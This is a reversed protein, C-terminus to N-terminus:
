VRKVQVNGKSQAETLQQSPYVVEYKNKILELLGVAGLSITTRSINFYLDILFKANHEILKVNNELMKNARDSLKFKKEALYDKYDYILEAIKIFERIWVFFKLLIYRDWEGLNLLKSETSALLYLLELLDSRTLNNKKVLERGRNVDEKALVKDILTKETGSSFIAQQLDKEYM